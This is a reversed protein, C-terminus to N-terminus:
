DRHPHGQRGRTWTFSWPKGPECGLISLRQKTVPKGDKDRDSLKAWVSAKRDLLLRQPDKAGEAIIEITLRRLDVSKL